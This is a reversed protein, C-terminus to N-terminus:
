ICWDLGESSIEDRGRHHDEFRTGHLHSSGTHHVRSSERYIDREEKVRELEARLQHIEAQIASLHDADKEHRSRDPSLSLHWHNLTNRPVGLLQTIENPSYGAGILKLANLKIQTTHRSM